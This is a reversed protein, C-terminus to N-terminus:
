GGRGGAGELARIAGPLVAVLQKMEDPTGISIRCWDDYPQFPRGIIFGKDRMSKNLATIPVGSQFFVFNTQSPAVRKGMATITDTLLKRGDLTNKRVFAQYEKDQVSALAARLGYSNATGTVKSQLRAIIDPRAIAFGIRLGALGHIKSATRSVIVNEGALVLDTMSRYGPADVFDHYAEDVLVIARRSASRVFDRVKASDALTGTPNNPNCVFVLDIQSTIRRDMEGLDHQLDKDLKVRHINAGIASAYDMLGEYTPYATVIDGDHLGYALACVDLVEGSGQTVLVNEPAVGVSAAFAARLEAEAPPDYKNCSDWDAMIAAKSKPSMGFPNENYHLRIPGAAARRATANRAIADYDVPADFLSDLQRRSAPAPTAELLSPAAVTAGVTLGSSVLWQRRSLRTDLIQKLRSTM